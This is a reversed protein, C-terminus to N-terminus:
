TYLIHPLLLGFDWGFWPYDYKGLDLFRLDEKPDECQLAQGQRPVHADLSKPFIGSKQSTNKRANKGAHKQKKQWFVNVNKEPLKHHKKEGYVEMPKKEQTLFLCVFFQM